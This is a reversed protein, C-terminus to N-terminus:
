NKPTPIKIKSFDAACKNCNSACGNKSNLSRYIIRGVYFLAGAFLIILIIEQIGM